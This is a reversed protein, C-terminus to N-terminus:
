SQRTHEYSYVYLDALGLAKAKDCYTILSLEGHQCSSFYLYHYLCMISPRPQRRRRATLDLSGRHTFL